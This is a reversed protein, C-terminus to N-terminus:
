QKVMYGKAQITKIISSDASANKIKERVHFIINAVQYTPQYSTGWINENIEEYNFVKGPQSCLLEMLKYENKTLGVEKKDSDKTYLILSRNIPNIKLLPMRGNSVHPESNQQDLMKNAEQRQLNNRIFLIVESPFHSKDFTADAGIKLYIQRITSTAVESIVWTFTGSNEKIKMIWECTTSIEQNADEKILIGDFDSTKQIIDTEDLSVLNLDYKQFAEVLQQDMEENSIVGLHYM